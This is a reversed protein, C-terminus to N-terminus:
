EKQVVLTKLAIKLACLLSVDAPSHMEFSDIRKVNQVVYTNLQALIYSLDIQMSHM